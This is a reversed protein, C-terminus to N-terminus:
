VKSEPVGIEEFIDYELKQVHPVLQSFPKALMFTAQIDASFFPSYVSLSNLCLVLGFKRMFVWKM